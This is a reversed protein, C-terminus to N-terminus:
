VEVASAGTRLTTADVDWVLMTTTAYDAHGRDHPWGAGEQVFGPGTRAGGYREVHAVWWGCLGARGTPAGGRWHKGANAIPADPDADRGAEARIVAADHRECAERTVMWPGGPMCGQARLFEDPLTLPALETGALAAALHLALVEESTPLRAGVSAAVELAGDYTLHALGVDPDEVPHHTIEVGPALAVRRPVIAAAPNSVYRVITM